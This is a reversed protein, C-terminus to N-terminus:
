RKRWWPIDEHNTGDIGFLRAVTREVSVTTHRYIDEQVKQAIAQALQRAKQVKENDLVLLQNGM